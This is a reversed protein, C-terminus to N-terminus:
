WTVTGVFGDKDVAGEAVFEWVLCDFPMRLIKYNLQLQIEPFAGSIAAKGAWITTRLARNWSVLGLFCLRLGESPGTTVRFSFLCAM